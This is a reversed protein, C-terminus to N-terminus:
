ALVLSDEISPLFTRRPTKPTKPAQKSATLTVEELAGEEQLKRLFRNNFAHGSCAVSFSGQLPLRAMGMDGIFDLIKHRVFDDPRRMVDPNLIKTDDLVVANEMSGGRALGKSRLYEVERLFGFTRAYSVRLFKEPTVDLSLGQRGIAPHPFDIYYNVRFAGPVNVPYVSIHKSGDKLEVPRTVRLVRRFAPLSVIGASRIGRVFPEASGDLIPIESQAAVEANDIGLGRLAALLHEVTSVSANNNGLTTALETAMVASPGLNIRQQGEPTEVLFVIGTNAPAPRCTVQVPLGSHLGVGSCSFTKKLTTQLMPFVELLRSSEM